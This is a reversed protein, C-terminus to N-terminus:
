RRGLACRPGRPPPAAARARPRMAHQRARGRERAEADRRRGRPEERTARPRGRESYALLLPARRAHDHLRFLGRSSAIRGFTRVSGDRHRPLHELPLNVMVVLYDVM